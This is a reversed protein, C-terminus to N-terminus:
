VEKQLKKMAVIRALLEDTRHHINASIKESPRRWESDQLPPRAVKSSLLDNEKEPAGGRRVDSQRPQRTTAAAAPATSGSSPHAGKMDLGYQITLSPSKTHRKYGSLSSATKATNLARLGTTGSPTPPAEGSEDLQQDAETHATSTQHESGQLQLQRLEIELRAVRARDTDRESALRVLQTEKSKLDLTCRTLKEQIDANARRLELIEQLLRNREAKDEEAKWHVRDKEQIWEAKEARLSELEAL